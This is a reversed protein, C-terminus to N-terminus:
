FVPCCVSELLLLVSQAPDCMDFSDDDSSSVASEDTDRAKREMLQENRPDVDSEWLGEKRRLLATCVVM